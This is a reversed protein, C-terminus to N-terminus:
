RDFGSSSARWIACRRASDSWGALDRKENRSLTRMPRRMEPETTKRATPARTKATNAPALQSSSRVEDPAGWTSPASTKSSPSSAAGGIDVVVAASSGAARNPVVVVVRRTKPGTVVVVTGPNPGRIVIGGTVVVEVVMGGTVTAGVVGVVDGPGPGVAGGVGAVVVGVVMGVVDGVVVGVVDVEVVEVEVDVVVVVVVGVVVVVTSGVVVVGDVVVIGSSVVVVVEISGQNGQCYIQPRSIRPEEVPSGTSKTRASVSVYFRDRNRVQAELRDGLSGIPHV